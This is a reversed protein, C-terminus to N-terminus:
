KEKIIRCLNNRFLEQVQIGPRDIREPLNKAESILRDTERRGKETLVGLNMAM